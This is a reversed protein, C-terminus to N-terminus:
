AVLNSLNDIIGVRSASSDYFLMLLISCAIILSTRHVNKLLEFKCEHMKKKQVFTALCMLYTVM